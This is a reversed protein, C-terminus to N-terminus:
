GIPFIDHLEMVKMCLPNVIAKLDSRHFLGRGGLKVIQLGIM